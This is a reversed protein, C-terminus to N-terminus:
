QDVQALEPLQPRTLNPTKLLKIGLFSLILSPGSDPSGDPFKGM